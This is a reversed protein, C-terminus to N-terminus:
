MEALFHCVQIRIGNDNMSDLRSGNITHLLPTTSTGLADILLQYVPDIEYPRISKSDYHEELTIFQLATTTNTSSSIPACLSVTFLCSVFSTVFCTYSRM